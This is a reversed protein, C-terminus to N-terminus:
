NSYTSGAGLVYTPDMSDAPVDEFQADVAADDRPIEMPLRGQGYHFVTMNPPVYGVPKNVNFIFDLVARDYAGFEVLFADVGTNGANNVNAPNSVLPYSGPVGPTENLTTLGNVFPKVIGPRDMHMVLVIKLTPNVAAVAAGTSDTYGDRVRFADIVKNRSVIATPLGGDNSLGPFPADFSLPVGGDMGSYAGKRAVIRIVAIDATALGTAQVIPTSTATKNSLRYDFDGYIDAVGDPTGTVNITDRVGDYWVDISGNRNTDAVAITSTSTTWRTPDIPLYATNGAHDRNKLLVMALKQAVFGNTRNAASKVEAVQAASTYPNEFIGLKFSMELIKEAAGSIDADNLLGQDYAAQVITFSDNGLQHSGAKVFVAAREPQTLAEVGHAANGMTGWDSTVMGTFGLTAKLYNTIMTKSFAAGTQEPDYKWQDKFISYCPMVAAAGAEIAAKFSIQHYEFNGGPYVNYKGVPTHSDRGDQNPGAGPFHKMTAAIGNKLGGTGLGQFGEICAKTHKAVAFANEGFVNQVRAWRPETGLDAMPGLQWRFGMGIFERRVTDGYQRTIAADNIAGLGLPYPWQSVNGMAAHSIVGSANMDMGFGHVPDATIVYPIGLPQAECLAQLNNYTNASQAASISASLRVLGQRVHNTTVNTVITSSLSGDATGSGINSSEYMLGIKQKATMKSVLDKARCSELLRWDEYKDLTGNGNLDRFQKGDVTIITKTSSATRVEVVPQTTYTIVTCPDVTPPACVGSTCVKGSECVGTVNSSSCLTGTAVCTGALCSKGTECPGNVNTSSCLASAVVCGGGFCIEGSSCLGSLNTASCLTSVAVCAGGFCEKEASCLGHTNTSSCLASTLVCGGALCSTGTACTGATNTPSCLTASAVCAGEFCESGAACSGLPNATSCELVLVETKTCGILGALLMAAAIPPRLKQNRM